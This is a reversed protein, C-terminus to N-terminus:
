KKARKLTFLMLKSGDPSEFKTPRETSKPDSLCITLTDGDIKYIGLHKGEKPPTLEIEAPNKKADVKYTGPDEKERGKEVLQVKGDATFTVAVGGEPPSVDQGGIVLKEAKWEGVISPADKKADKELPAGVAFLVGFVLTSYM